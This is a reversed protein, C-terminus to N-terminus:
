RLKVERGKKINYLLYKNMGSDYLLLNEKDSWICDKDSKGTANLKYDRVKEGKESVIRLYRDGTSVENYFIYIYEGDMNILSVNIKKEIDEKPMSYLIESSSGDIDSRYIDLKKETKVSYKDIQTERDIYYIKRGYCARLQCGEPVALEQITGGVTDYEVSSAEVGAGQKDSYVTNTLYIYDGDTNTIRMDPCYGKIKYVEERSGDELSVRYLIQERESSPETDLWNIVMYGYGRHIIFELSFSLDEEEVAFLKTVATKESGDLNMRYLYVNKDDDDGEADSSIVYLHSGSVYLGKFDVYRANCSYMDHHCGPVYCLVEARRSKKDVFYIHNKDDNYNYAYFGADTYAATKVGQFNQNESQRDDDSLEYTYSEMDNDTVNSVPHGDNSINNEVSQKYKNNDRSGCAALCFLICVLLISAGQIKRM